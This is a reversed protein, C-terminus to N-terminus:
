FPNGNLIDCNNRRRSQLLILIVPTNLTWALVFTHRNSILVTIASKAIFWFTIPWETDTTNKRVINITEKIASISLCM